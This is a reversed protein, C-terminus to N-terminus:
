FIGLYMDREASITGSRRGTGGYAYPGINVNIPDNWIQDLVINDISNAGPASTDDGANYDSGAGWTSNFVTAGSSSTGVCNVAVTGSGVGQEYCHGTSPMEVAACNYMEVLSPVSRIAFGNTLAAGGSSMNYVLVNRFTILGSGTGLGSGQSVGSIGGAATNHVDHIIIDNFDATQSSAHWSLFHIGGLQSASTLDNSTIEM